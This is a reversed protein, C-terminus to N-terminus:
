VSGLRPEKKGPQAIWERYELRNHPHRLVEMPVQTAAPMASHTNVNIASSHTTTQNTYPPAQRRRHQEERREEEELQERMLQQRLLTRSGLPPRCSGHQDSPNSKGRESCSVRENPSASIM